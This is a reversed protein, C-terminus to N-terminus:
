KGKKLADSKKKMQALREKASTTHFADSPPGFKVNGAKFKKTNVPNTNYGMRKVDIPRTNSGQKKMDIAPRDPFATTHRSPGAAKKAPMSGATGPRGPFSTTPRNPGFQTTGTRVGTKPRSLPVPPKNSRSTGKGRTVSLQTSVATAGGKPLTRMDNATARRVLTDGNKPNTKAAAGLRGLRKFKGNAEAVYEYGGSKYHKGVTYQQKTKSGTITQVKGGSAMKSVKGGKKFGQKSKVYADLGKQTANASARQNQNYPNASAGSLFPQSITRMMPPAPNVGTNKAVSSSSPSRASTLARGLEQLAQQPAPRARPLPPAPRMPPAAPRSAVKTTM